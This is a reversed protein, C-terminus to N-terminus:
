RKQPPLIKVLYMKLGLVVVKFALYKIGSDFM